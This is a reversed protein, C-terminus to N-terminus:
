LLQKEIQIAIDVYDEPTITDIDDFSQSAAIGATYYQELDVPSQAGIRLVEDYANEAIFDVYGQHKASLKAYDRDQLATLVTQLGTLNQELPKKQASLTNKVAVVNPNTSVNLASIRSNYNGVQATVNAMTAQTIARASTVYADWREQPTSM